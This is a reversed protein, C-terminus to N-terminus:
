QQEPEHQESHEDPEPREDLPDRREDLPDRGPRVVSDAPDPTRRDPADLAELVMGIVQPDLPLDSHEVANDPYEDQVFRNTVEVGDRSHLMQAQVPLVTHDNRTIIATYRVGPVVDPTESLEQIVPSVRLQERASPGLLADLGTGILPAEAIVDLKGLPSAGHIPAGLTIMHRVTRDGGLWKVYLHGLLGGQSHGVLDVRAAGTAELVRDVFLALEGASAMLHGTGFGTARGRLSGREEGYWLAFTPHGRERLRAVLDHWRHIGTETGHLLVVPVVGSRAPAAWDNVGELGAVDRVPAAPATRCPLRRRVGVPLTLAAAKAVSAAYHTLRNM